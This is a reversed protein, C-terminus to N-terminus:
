NWIYMRFTFSGALDMTIITMKTGDKRKIDVGGRILHLQYDGKWDNYGWWERRSKEPIVEHKIGKFVKNIDPIPNHVTVLFMLDLLKLRPNSGAIWHKLFWNMNFKECTRAFINSSNSMLVQDLTLRVDNGIRLYDYNKMLIPELEFVGNTMIKSHVMLRKATPFATILERTYAASCFSNVELIDIQLGNLCERLSSVNYSDTTFLLKSIDTINYLQMFHNVYDRVGYGRTNESLTVEEGMECSTELSHPKRLAGFDKNKFKMEIRIFKKNKFNIFLMLTRSFQFNLYVNMHNQNIILNKTRKSCFSLKLQDLLTMNQIVGSLAKDPLRLLSITSPHNNM